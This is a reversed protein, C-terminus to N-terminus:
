ILAPENSGSFAISSFQIAMEVRELPSSLRSYEATATVYSISFESFRYFDFVDNLCFGAIPIRNDPPSSTVFGRVRFTLCDKRSQHHFM